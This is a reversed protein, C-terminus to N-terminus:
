VAYAYLGYIVAVAVIFIIMSLLLKKVGPNLTSLAATGLLAGVAMFVTVLLYAEADSGEKTSLQSLEISHNYTDYSSAVEDVEFTNWALTENYGFRESGSGNVLLYGLQVSFMEQRVLVALETQNTYELLKAEGNLNNDHLVEQLAQLYEMTAMNLERMSETTYGASRNNATASLYAATGSITACAAVLITLLATTKDMHESM